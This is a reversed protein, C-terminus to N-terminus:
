RTQGPAPADRMKEVIAWDVRRDSIQEVSIKLGSCTVVPRSGNSPIETLRSFVLGSLTDYESDTDIEVGLAESLADLEASGLVRFRGDNLPVIPQAEQPDFEDYINGVIEELLDELTILGGTGGYEDLVIAMHQKRLQMESFLRDTRVTDPVFYAPRILARLERPQPSFRNLLYDRTTLLGIVHDIDDEYVPFRSLGSERITSLIDEPADEVDIFTIDKRHTMCDGASMNNFEFINEIMKKEDAEIEGKEEGLDVMMRIEQETVRETCLAPRLRFFKAVIRALLSALRFAPLFLGTLLWAPASLVELTREPARAAFYAPLLGCLAHYLIGTLLLVSVAALARGTQVGPAGSLWGALPPAFWACACACAGAMLIGHTMSFPGYRDNAYGALRRMRRALVSGIQGSADPAAADAALAAAAAARTVAGGLFLTLLLVTQGFPGDAM